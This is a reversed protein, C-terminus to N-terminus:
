SRWYFGHREQVERPESQGPQGTGPIFGFGALTAIVIGGFVAGTVAGLVILAWETRPPAAIGYEGGVTRALWVTDGVEDRDPYALERNPEHEVTDREGGTESRDRERDAPIVATRERHREGRPHEREHRREDASDSGTGDDM